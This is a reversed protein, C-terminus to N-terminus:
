TLACTYVQAHGTHDSTFVVSRGDPSFSPHPHTHQPAYPKEVGDDYPCHRTEWHAGINSSKSLCLPSSEGSGDAPSFVHIGTDPYTTDAVMLTGARNIAAHWAPFRTATTKEGTDINLRFTGNPWQVTILDRTGPVWTEHVVWEKEAVNRRYALRHGSGDRNVLWMRETYPGAYRLLTPDDPHFEPHGISPAELIVEHKGSGTAIVVFRSVSGVKVPVAWWQDCRSLTTTGMAAGVMGEERMRVAGFNVLCEERFTEADVRWAGSGDTFYVFRGDHSPHVSWEALGEHETIQVLKGTDQLEAFIEPRGTRRSVFILRRQADDFAPLYFFPHHHISPHATVQRM